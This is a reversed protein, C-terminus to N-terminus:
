RRGHLPRPFTGVPTKQKGDTENVAHVFRTGIGYPRQLPNGPAEWRIEPRHLVRPNHLREVGTNSMVTRVRRNSIFCVETISIGKDVEATNRVKKVADNLSLM